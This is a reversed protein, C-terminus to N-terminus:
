AHVGLGRAADKETGLHDPGVGLMDAVQEGPGQLRPERHLLHQLHGEVVRDDLFAQAGRNAVEVRVHLAGACFGQVQARLRGGRGHLLIPAKGPSPGDMIESTWSHSGIRTAATATKTALLRMWTTNRQCAASVLPSALSSSTRATIRAPPTPGPCYKMGKQGSLFSSALGSTTAFNLSPGTPRRTSHGNPAGLMALGSPSQNASFTTMAM